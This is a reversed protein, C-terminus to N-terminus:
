SRWPNEKERWGEEEEERSRKMGEGRWGPEGGRGEAEELPRHRPGVDSGICSLRTNDLPQQAHTRGGIDVADGSGGVQDEFVQIQIGPM